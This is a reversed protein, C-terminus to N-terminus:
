SSCRPPEQIPPQQIAPQTVPNSAGDTLGSEETPTYCWKTIVPKQVKRPNTQSRTCVEKPVDTCSEHPKLKPVLKTVHQCKRQPELSCQEEPKEGPITRTETRCEKPGKTVGCGSPGCIEVPVKDCRTIPTFKTVPTKAVSCVEKPWKSCKTDTTYGSTQEECKEETVTECTVVDDEVSHTEQQTWCESQYETSCVEPGPSNCDKVLPEVCVSVEAQTATKAYQIFCDKRYNDECEEEQQASYTTSYSTHCRQNYSHECKIGEDYETEETTTIKDICKKGAQAVTNFDTKVEEGGQRVERPPLGSNSNFPFTNTLSRSLRPSSGLGPSLLSLAVALGLATQWGM